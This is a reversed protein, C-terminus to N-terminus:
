YFPLEGKEAKQEILKILSSDDKRSCINKDRKINGRHIGKEVGSFQTPPLGYSTLAILAYELKKGNIKGQSLITTDEVPSLKEKLSQFIKNAMRTDGVVVFRYEHNARPHENSRTDWRVYREAM